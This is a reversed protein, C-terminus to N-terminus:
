LIGGAYLIIPNPNEVPKVLGLYIFAIPVILTVLTWILIVGFWVIGSVTTGFDDELFQILTPAIYQTIYILFLGAFFFGNGILIKKVDVM